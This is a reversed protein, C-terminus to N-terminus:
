SSRAMRSHRKLWKTAEDIEVRGVAVGISFRVLDKQEAELRFGNMRLFLAASAIATRKNGDAFSHNRAVSEMLAAAKRFIERYLSRGGFTAQPRGVASELLRIDLVGHAGGTEDIIRAHLFLIQEATLYKV